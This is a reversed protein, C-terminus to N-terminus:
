AYYKMKNKLIRKWLEQRLKELSLSILLHDIFIHLTFRHIPFFVQTNRSNKKLAFKLLREVLCLNKSMPLLMAGKFHFSARLKEKHTSMEKTFWSHSCGTGRIPKWWWIRFIFAREIEFKFHTLSASLRNFIQKGAELTFGTCCQQLILYLM